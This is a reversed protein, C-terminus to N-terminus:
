IKVPVDCAKDYILRYPTMRSIRKIAARYAWRTDDLEELWAKCNPCGMKEFIIKVESFFQRKDELQRPAESKCAGDLRVASFLELADLDDVMDVAHVESEELGTPTKNFVNMEHTMNEFLLKLLEKKLCLSAEDSKEKGKVIEDTVEPAPAATQQDTPMEPRSVEKGSQLTIVVKVSEFTDGSVHHVPQQQQRYVQPNPQPKSKEKESEMVELKKSLAAVLAQFSTEEKVEYRDGGSIVRLPQAAIPALEPHTNWQQASQALYDLFSLSEDPEKCFFMGNCM